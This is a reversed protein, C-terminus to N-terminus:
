GLARNMFGPNTGGALKTSKDFTWLWSVTASGACLHM